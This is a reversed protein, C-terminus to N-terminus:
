KLVRRALQHGRLAILRNRDAYISGAKARLREAAIARALRADVNIRDMAEPYVGLLRSLWWARNGPSYLLQARAENKISNHITM